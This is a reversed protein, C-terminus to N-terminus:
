TASESLTSIYYNYITDDIEEGEQELNAIIWKWFSHRYRASPPYARFHESTLLLNVLETQLDSSYISSPWSLGTVPVLLGYAQIINFLDRHM